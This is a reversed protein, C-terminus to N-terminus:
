QCILHFFKDGDETDFLSGLLCVLLTLLSESSSAAEMKSKLGLCSSQANGCFVQLNRGCYVMDCKLLHYEEIDVYKIHTCVPM